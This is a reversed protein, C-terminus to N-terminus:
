QSLLLGSVLQKLKAFKHGIGKGLSLSVALSLHLTVEQGTWYKPGPLSSGVQM